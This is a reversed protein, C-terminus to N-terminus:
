HEPPLKLLLVPDDPRFIQPLMRSAYRGALEWGNEAKEEPALEECEELTISVADKFISAADQRQDSFRSSAAEVYMLLNNEALFRAFLMRHWHQYAVETVLHEVEHEGRSGRIDGLQRSHARLRNRLERVELTATAARLSALTQRLDDAALKPIYVFVLPSDNGARRANALVTKDEEDWGDRFWVTVSKEGDKPEEFGFHLITRPENSKGQTIRLAKLRERRPAM